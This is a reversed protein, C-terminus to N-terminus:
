HIMRVVADVLEDVSRGGDQHLVPLGSREAQAAVLSNWWLSRHMFNRHMRDPDASGAFFDPNSRERRELEVADVHLWVSRVGRQDLDAVVRPSLLWWDLVFASGIALHRAIVREIPRWMIDALTQADAILKEPPGITFYAQPGGNRMLHLAPHSQEDTFQRAVIALDDGSVSAIGMRAAVARGLSTKGAGPAGGILLAGFAADTPEFMEAM